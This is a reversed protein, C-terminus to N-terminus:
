NTPAKGPRMEEILLYKSSLIPDLSAQYLTNPYTHTKYLLQHRNLIFKSQPHMFSVAIAIVGYKKPSSVGYTISSGSPILSWQTAVIPVEVPAVYDLRMYHESVGLALALDRFLAYQLQGGSQGLFQQLETKADLVAFQTATPSDRTCVRILFKKAVIKFAKQLPIAPPIPQISRDKSLTLHWQSYRLPSTATTVALNNIKATAIQEDTPRPDDLPSPVDMLNGKNWARTAIPATPHDSTTTIRIYMNISESQLPAYPPPTTRIAALLASAPTFILPRMALLDGTSLIFTGTASLGISCDDSLGPYRSIRISVSPLRMPTSALNPSFEGRLEQNPTYTISYRLDGSPPTSGIALVYIAPSEIPGAPVFDSLKSAGPNKPNILMAPPVIASATESYTPVIELIQTGAPLISISIYAVVHPNASIPLDLGTNADVQKYEVRLMYHGLQVSEHDAVANLSNANITSSTYVLRPPIVTDASLREVDMFVPAIGDSVPNVCELEHSVLVLTGTMIRSLIETEHNIPERTRSQKSGISQEISPFLDGFGFIFTSLTIGVATTASIFAEIPDITTNTIVDSNQDLPPPAVIAFEVLFSPSERISGALTFQISIGVTMTIAVSRAPSWIIGYDSANSGYEAFSSGSLTVPLGTSNDTFILTYTLGPYLSRNTMYTTLFDNKLYVRIGDSNPLEIQGSPTATNTSASEILQGILGSSVARTDVIWISKTPVPKYFYDLPHRSKIYELRVQQRIQSTTYTGTPTITFATTNSGYIGPISYLTDDITAIAWKGQMPATGTEYCVKPAAADNWVPGGVLSGADIAIPLFKSESLFGPQSTKQISFVTHLTADSATPPILHQSAFNVIYGQDQLAAVTITSFWGKDSSFGTMIENPFAPIHFRGKGAAFNPTDRYGTAPVSMYRRDNDDGAVATEVIGEEWHSKQTGLAFNNEVPIYTFYDLTSPASVDLSYGLAFFKIVYKSYEEVARSAFSPNTSTVLPPRKEYLWGTTTGDTTLFNGWGGKIPSASNRIGIGHLIEHMMVLYFETAPLTTGLGTPVTTQNNFTISSGTVFMEDMFHDNLAILQAFPFPHSSFAGPGYTGSYGITNATTTFEPSGIVYINLLMDFGTEEATAERINVNQWSSPQGATVSPLTNYVFKKPTSTATIIDELAFIIADIYSELKAVAVANSASININDPHYLINYGISYATSSRAIKRTKPQSHVSRVVPLSYLRSLREPTLEVVGGCCGRKKPIEGASL